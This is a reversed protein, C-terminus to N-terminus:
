KIKHGISDKPDFDSGAVEDSKRFAEWLMERYMYKRKIGAVCRGLVGESLRLKDGWCM